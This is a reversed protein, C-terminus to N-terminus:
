EQKALDMGVYLGTSHPWAAVGGAPIPPTRLLAPSITAPRCRLADMQWDLAARCVIEAVVPNKQMFNLLVAQLKDADGGVLHSATFQDAILMLVADDATRLKAAADIASTIAEFFPSRTKEEM